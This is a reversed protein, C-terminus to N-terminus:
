DRPASADIRQADSLEAGVSNNHMSKSHASENRNALAKEGCEARDALHVRKIKYEAAKTAMKSIRQATEPFDAPGRARRHLLRTM